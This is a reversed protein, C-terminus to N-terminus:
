ILYGKRKGWDIWDHTMKDIDGYHEPLVPNVGAISELAWFWHGGKDRLDMLIIPLAEPGLGIIRQYCPHLAKDTISSLFKTENRWQIALQKFTDAINGVSVRARSRREVKGFWRNTQAYPDIINEAGFGRVIFGWVKDSYIDSAPKQSIRGPRLASEYKYSATAFEGM